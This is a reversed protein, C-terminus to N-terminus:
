KRKQDRAKMILKKPGDSATSSSSRRRCFMMSGIIAAIISTLVVFFDLMPNQHIPPEKLLEAPNNDDLSPEFMMKMGKSTGEAVNIGPIVSLARQTERKCTDSLEIQSHIVKEIERRCNGTLGSLLDEINDKTLHVPM